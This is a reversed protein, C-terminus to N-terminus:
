YFGFVPFYYEKTKDKGDIIFTMKHQEMSDSILYLKRRLITKIHLLKVKEKCSVRM